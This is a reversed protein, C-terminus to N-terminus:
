FLQGLNSMTYSVGWSKRLYTRGVEYCLGFVVDRSGTAWIGRTFAPLGGAKAMSHAASWFNQMTRTNWVHYKVTALQNLVMGNIAGAAIGM